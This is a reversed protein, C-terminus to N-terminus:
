FLNLDFNYHSFYNVQVIALAYYSEDSDECLLYITDRISLWLCDCIYSFTLSSELNWYGEEASVNLWQVRWYHRGFTNKV